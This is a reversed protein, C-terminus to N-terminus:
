QGGGPPIENRRRFIMWLGLGILILPWGHHIIRANFLTSLLFLLGLAILVIAGVPVRNSCNAGFPMPPMPPMPPM